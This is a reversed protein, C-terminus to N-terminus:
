LRGVLLPPIRTTIAVLVPTVFSVVISFISDGFFFKCFLLSIKMLSMINQLVFYSKEYM